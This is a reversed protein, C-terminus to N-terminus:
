ARSIRRSIRAVLAKTRLPKIVYDDVGMKFFQTEQEESDNNTLVVVATHQWDEHMRILRVLALVSGQPQDRDDIVVASPPEESNLVKGMESIDCVLGAYFGERVLLGSLLLCTDAEYAVVLVRARTTYTKTASATM